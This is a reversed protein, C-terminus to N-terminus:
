KHGVPTYKCLQCFLELCACFVCVCVCSIALGRLKTWALHEPLVESGVLGMAAQLMYVAGLPSGMGCYSPHAYSLPM